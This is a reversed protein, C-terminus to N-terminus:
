KKPVNEATTAVTKEVAVVGPYFLAQKSHKESTKLSDTTALQKLVARAISGGVKYKQVVQSVSIHKGIKPIGTVLKDLDARSIFVANEVKEKAKGKTWKQM